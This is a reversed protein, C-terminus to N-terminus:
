LHSMERGFWAAVWVRAQLFKFTDFTRNQDACLYLLSPQFSGSLGNTVFGVDLVLASMAPLILGSVYYLWSLGGGM